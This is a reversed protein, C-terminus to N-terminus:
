RKCYVICVRIKLFLIKLVIYECSHDRQSIPIIEKSIEYQAEKSATADLEQELQGIRDLQEGMTKSM